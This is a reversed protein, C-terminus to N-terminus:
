KKAARAAQAKVFDEAQQIVEDIVEEDLQDFATIGHAQFLKDRVRDRNQEKSILHTLAAEIRDTGSEGEQDENRSSIQTVTATKTGAPVEVTVIRPAPDRPATVEPSEFDPDLTGAVPVCFGKLIAEKFAYSSAKGSAKDANDIGEGIAEVIHTSGDLASTFVYSMHVYAFGSFKGKDNIKSETRFCIVRSGILLSQEVLLPSLYFMVDDIGRFNFNQSSNKSAKDIGVKALAIQVALLATLVHPVKSTSM